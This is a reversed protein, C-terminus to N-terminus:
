FLATNESEEISQLFNIGCNDENQILWGVELCTVKVPYSNYDSEKPQEGLVKQFYDDDVFSSGSANIAVITDNFPEIVKMSQKNQM